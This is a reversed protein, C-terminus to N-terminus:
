RGHLLGVLGFCTPMKIRYVVNSYLSCCYETWQSLARSPVVNNKKKEMQTRLHIAPCYDWQPINSKEDSVEFSVRLDPRKSTKGVSLFTENNSYKMWKGKGEKVYHFPASVLGTILSTTKLELNWMNEADEESLWQPPPPSHSTSSKSHLQSNINNVCPPLEKFHLVQGNSYM